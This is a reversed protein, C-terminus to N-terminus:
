WPPLTETPVNSPLNARLCKRSRLFYDLSCRPSDSLRLSPNLIPSSNLQQATVPNGDITTAVIQDPNQDITLDDFTPTSTDETPGLDFSTGPSEHEPAAIEAVDLTQDTSTTTAPRQTEHFIDGYIGYLFDLLHADLKLPTGHRNLLDMSFKKFALYVEPSLHMSLHGSGDSYSRQRIVNDPPKRLAEAVPPGDPSMHHAIIDRVRKKAADFADPNSTEAADVLHVEAAAMAAPHYCPPVAVAAAYQALQQDMSIIRDLNEASMAGSMFSEAVKPLCPQNTIVSPDLGPAYTVYPHRQLIKKIHQSSYRMVERLYDKSSAFATVGDPSGFFKPHSLLIQDLHRSFHTVAAAHLNGISRLSDAIVTVTDCLREPPTPGESEDLPEDTATAQDEATSTDNNGAHGSWDAASDPNYQAYGHIAEPSTANRVFIGLAHNIIGALQGQSLAEFAALSINDPLHFNAAPDPSTTSMMDEQGAPGYFVASANRLGEM